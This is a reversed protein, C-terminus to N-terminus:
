GACGRLRILTKALRTSEEAEMSELSPYVLVRAMSLSHILQDSDKSTVCTKNVTKEHAPMNIIILIYDVTVPVVLM